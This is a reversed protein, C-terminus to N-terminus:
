DSDEPYHHRRSRYVTARMLFMATVPSGLILLATILLEHFVPRQELASFVLVSAMLVCAIGMTNGLTPAHVRAYFHRLRVLGFSGTLALLGGCVLLIAAPITVWLPLAEATM